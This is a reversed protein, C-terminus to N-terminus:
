GTETKEFGVSLHNEWSEAPKLHLEWQQIFCHSQFIPPREPAAPNFTELPFSWCRFPRASSLTISVENRVDRVLLGQMAEIEQPESGIESKRDEDLLFLRGSEVSRAALSVNMEVALRSEMDEEGLNSVKYYVDISRPRFVFRKEIGVSHRINGAMVFSSRRMLLEPLARNLEVLEFPGTLFDGAEEYCGERFEEMTCRPALFHDLFAKRPYLTPAAAGAPALDRQVMTDLYNWSAPLFDLEFLAGGRSHIYANLESGQYLYEICNDM